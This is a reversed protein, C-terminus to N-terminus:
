GFLDGLDFEFEQGSGNQFNNWDFGGDQPGAGSFTRGYSDYEARKRDDSLVSYAESIEKFKAEDGEAKDPHYKHALKRFAKKVDDKSASKEIGLIKYYDKAM